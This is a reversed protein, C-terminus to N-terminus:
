PAQRMVERMNEVFISQTAARPHSLLIHGNHGKGEHTINASPALPFTLIYSTPRPSVIVRISHILYLNVLRDAGAVIAINSLRGPIPHVRVYKRTYVTYVNCHLCVIM